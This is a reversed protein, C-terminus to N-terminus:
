ENTEMILNLVEQTINKIESSADGNPDLEIVTKGSSLAESYLVRQSTRSNLIKLQFHELTDNIDKALNSNKIQRSIVFVAKPVGNTVEQRAKILQILADCAWIDAASPQVPILIIDANKVSFAIMEHLKAAGDIIIFDLDKTFQNFDKQLNPKDIVVVSPQSNGSDMSKWDRLTGQPDSDVLMVKYGSNLLWSGLNTCLTTKGCGGKPNLISIKKIM